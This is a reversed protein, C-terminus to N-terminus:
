LELTSLDAAPPANETAVHHYIAQRLLVLLAADNAFSQIPGDPLSQLAGRLAAEEAPDILLRLIFTQVTRM